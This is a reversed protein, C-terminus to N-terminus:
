PLKHTQPTYNGMPDDWSRSFPKTVLGHESTPFSIMWSKEMIDTNPYNDHDLIYRNIDEEDLM